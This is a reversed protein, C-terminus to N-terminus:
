ATLVHDRAALSGGGWGNGGDIRGNYGTASLERWNLEALALRVLGYSAVSSPLRDKSLFEDCTLRNNTKM